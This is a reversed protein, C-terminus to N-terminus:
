PVLLPIYDAAAKTWSFETNMAHSRLADLEAASRQMLNECLATFNKSKEDRSKGSFLFGNKGDAITDILGGVAAAVPLCGYRMAKMQSTGCPEFESPMLMFDASAYLHKELNDDFGGFLLANPYPALLEAMKALLNGKGLVILTCNKALLLDLITSGQWADLMLRIKQETLRSVLAFMPKSQAKEVDFVAIKKRLGEEAGPMLSQTTALERVLGPLDGLLRRRHERRGAALDGVRFPPNLNAASYYDMDIANVIGILRQEKKLRVFDDELGRGGLFDERPNDHRTIEDAYTPSVTTVYHAANLGARMPNICPIEAHPDLYPKKVEDALTGLDPFWDLFAELNGRVAWPRTGQYELNHVSFIRRVPKLVVYAPHVQVLMHVLAAHWDHCHIADVADGTKHLHLLLEAAALSFFAFRRADDEFYGRGLRGSDIYIDSYEGRFFRDSHILLANLTGHKGQFVSVSSEEGAFRVTLTTFLHVDLRVEEYYPLIVSVRHHAKVLADALGWVVSGLGGRQAIGSCEASIQAIHRQPMPIYM